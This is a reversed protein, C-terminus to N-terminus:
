EGPKENTEPQEDHVDTETGTAPRTTSRNGSLCSLGGPQGSPRTTARQLAPAVSPVGPDTPTSRAEDAMATGLLIPSWPAFVAPCRAVAPVCARARERGHANAQTAYTRTTMEDQAKVQHTGSPRPMRANMHSWAAAPGTLHNESRRNGRIEASRAPDPPRRVPRPQPSRPSRPTSRPRAPWSTRRERALGPRRRGLRDRRGRRGCSSRRGRRRGLPRPALEFYGDFVGEATWCLDLSAAGVRRLDEFRTCRPPSRRSTARCCSRTGSRSAPRSSRRSPRGRRERPHPREDRFAGGGKRAATRATSCRRTCSVSWRSATPSSASRCASRTSATCSTRRATSRISSGAPTPASAARRRASCRCARDRADLVARVADESAIDAATVWDGPAKERVDALRASTRACSRAAPARPAPRRVVLLADLDLATVRTARGHARRRARAHRRRDLQRRADPDDTVLEEGNADRVVAGAEVCALYGGLYDWPAHIRRPISSATSAAPRSTACCRAVRLRAGPVAEVAAARAPLGILAVVSDEVRTATSASCGARRRPVRGRRPGRHRARRDGPERRARRAATPTSRASRSRGTRSAARATPRATSRTSCWRSRRARASTCARSRASSRAGAANRLVALAAADAISTSRTSAPAVETRARPDAADIPAVADRVAAASTTSATRAARRATMPGAGGRGGRQLRARGLMPERVRRRSCRTRRPSSRRCTAPGSRRSTCGPGCSATRAACWCARRGRDRRARGRRRRRRVARRPRRRHASRARAWVMSNFQKGRRTSLVFQGEPVDLAHPAVVRSSPRATPRRSCAAKACAHAASRSRTAPRACISSARRLQARRARDRRPDRRGIECGFARRLEPRVRRAVDAFIQWESRAEGVRPGPIEPSFAVRRETTTSTGGGEQEYRTAAPLLVVTEGPEVLMQHTVLIDQHVRLPARALAARTVDPAPLVDLFNGGSSWLVDLEGLRAADVMEAATLGPRARSRRLGVREGLAAATADNIAVGGPFATSYCGMEAGGQVGSHGRIPMLGAGPRGVNGRALGLNVIAHVNDVGHEHQTIGMSWVLVASARRRTCARRLAGHRCPDRGVGARPRRVVRRELEELLADFGVTHENVFARDLGGIALLQKLVGNVFAVDGGTHVPFFEDAIKTGFM